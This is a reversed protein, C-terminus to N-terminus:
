ESWENWLGRILKLAESLVFLGFLVLDVGFLAKEALEGGNTIFPPVYGDAAKVCVSITVAMGLVVLFALAGVVVHITFDVMPKVARSIEFGM